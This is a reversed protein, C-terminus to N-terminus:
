KEGMHPYAIGTPPVFNEKISRQSTWRQLNLM